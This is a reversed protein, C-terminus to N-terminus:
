KDLIAGHDVAGAGFRLAGIDRNCRAFDGFDALHRFARFFRDVGRVQNDRRAEDVRVGMIVGLNAPVGVDRRRGPM